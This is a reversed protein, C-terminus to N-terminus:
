SAPEYPSAHAAIRLLDAPDYGFAADLQRQTAALQRRLEAVLASDGQRAATVQQRLAAIRRDKRAIEADRSEIQRELQAAQDRLAKCEAADTQDMARAAAAIGGRLAAVTGAPLM